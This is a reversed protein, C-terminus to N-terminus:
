NTSGGCETSEGLVRLFAEPMTGDSRAGLRNLEQLAKSIHQKLEHCNDISSAQTEAIKLYRKISAVPDEASVILM